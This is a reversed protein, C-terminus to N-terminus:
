ERVQGALERVEHYLVASQFQNGLDRKLLGQCRMSLPEDQAFIIVSVILKTNSSNRGWKTRM